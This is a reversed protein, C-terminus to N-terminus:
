MGINQLLNYDSRAVEEFVTSLRTRCKVEICIPKENGEGDLVIGVADPSCRLDSILNNELLGVKYACKLVKHTESIEKMRTDTVLKKIIVDEMEHGIKTDKSTNGSLRKMFSRKMFSRKLVITTVTDCYGM